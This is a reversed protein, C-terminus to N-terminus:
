EGGCAIRLLRIEIAHFGGACRIRRERSHMGKWAARLSADAQVADKFLQIERVVCRDIREDRSLEGREAEVRRLARSRRPSPASFEASAV